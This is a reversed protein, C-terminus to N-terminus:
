QDGGLERKRAEFEAQSVTMFYVRPDQAPLPKYGRIWARADEPSVEMGPIAPTMPEDDGAETDTMLNVPAVNLAFALRAMEDISVGRKGTELRALASRDIPMKFNALKDALDQQSWGLRERLYRVRRATIQEFTPPM